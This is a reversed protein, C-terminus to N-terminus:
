AHRTRRLALMICPQTLVLYVIFVICVQEISLDNDMLAGASVPGLASAFVSIAGALAKIGGLHALGYLEAWMVSVATHSIGTSIGAFALYIWAAAHTDSVVLTILALALPLLMYRVLRVAGYRDILPGSTLSAITTAAAFVFYSGTFWAHTWGKTDALTLHHFFMATIIISTGALGPMLLLFRPDRVMEKITWSRRDTEATTTTVSQDMRALYRKHREPHGTLLWLAIPLTVFLLAGAIFAYSERWGVIGILLVAGLPLVAEGLSFGLSAIAVARGRGVFFYRAMSTIATHSMLGQGSQRLAFIAVTLMIAGTASSMLAAAVVFLVFVGATYTRLELRDILKGTWPLLAASCLTGVMYVTGWATDSLGFEAKVQPGFVGIFYTQGYSSTFALFFGFGVFRLNARAFEVYGGIM